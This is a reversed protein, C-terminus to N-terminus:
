LKTGSQNTDSHGLTEQVSTPSELNLTKHALIINLSFVDISRRQDVDINRRFDRRFHSCHLSYISTKVVCEFFKKEVDKIRM